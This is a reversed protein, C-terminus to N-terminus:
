WRYMRKYILLGSVQAMEWIAKELTSQLEAIVSVAVPLSPSTSEPSDTTDATANAQVNGSANAAQKATRM